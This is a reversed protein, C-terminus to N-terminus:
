QAPGSDSLLSWLRLPRRIGAAPTRTRTPDSDAQPSPTNCPAGPMESCRFGRRGLSSCCLPPETYRRANRNLHEEPRGQKPRNVVGDILSILKHQRMSTYFGFFSPPWLVQQFFNPIYRFGIMLGFGQDLNHVEHWWHEPFYMLDGPEVIVDQFPIGEPIFVNRSALVCPVETRIPSLQPTYNPHVFRWLKTNAIQLLMDPVAAQHLVASFWTGYYMFSHTLKGLGTATSPWECHPCLSTIKNFWLRVQEKVRPNDEALDTSFGLYVREGRQMRDIADHLGLQVHRDQLMNTAFSYNLDRFHAKPDHTYKALLSRPAFGKWLVVRDRRALIGPIDAETVNDDDVVVLMGPVQSCCNTASAHVGVVLEPTISARLCFEQFTEGFPVLLLSRWPGDVLTALLPLLASGFLVCLATLLSRKMYKRLVMGDSHKARRDYILAAADDGARARVKRRMGYVEM